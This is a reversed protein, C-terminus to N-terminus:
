VAYIESRILRVRSLAYCSSTWCCTTPSAQSVEFLYYLLQQLENHLNTDNDWPHGAHKLLKVIRESPAHASQRHIKAAMAQKTLNVSQTALTVTVSPSKQAHVAQTASTIPIIYHGSNTVTLPLERGHFTVTDAAFNVSMGAKKLSDRSFLLPIDANIIDTDIRVPTNGIRGPFNVRIQSQVKQGDGFKFMRNSPVFRCQKQQALSLSDYLTNWWTSGAVTKSAGCDLVACGTSEALLTNLTHPSDYDSQHLVIDYEESPYELGPLSSINSETADPASSPVLFTVAPSPKHPCNGIWHM